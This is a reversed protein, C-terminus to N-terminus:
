RMLSFHNTQKDLQMFTSERQRKETLLPLPFFHIEHQYEPWQGSNKRCLYAVEAEITEMERLSVYENNSSATWITLQLEHSLNKWKYGHYGGKGEAKFGSNLRGSMPQNAIGVYLLKGAHSLTYLKPIGRRSAPTTFTVKKSNQFLKYGAKSLLRLTYNQPDNLVM